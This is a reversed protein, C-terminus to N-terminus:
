WDREPLPRDIGRLRDAVWDLGEEVGAAYDIPGRHRREYYYDISAQDLEDALQGLEAVVEALVQGALPSPVGARAIATVMRDLPDKM